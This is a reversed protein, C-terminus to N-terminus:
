NFFKIKSVELYKPQSFKKKVANLSSKEESDLILCMDKACERLKEEPYESLKSILDFENKKTIKLTIYIAAASKLSPHFKNTKSDVLFLEILYRCFMISHEDMKLLVSFIELFRFSSPTTINFELINLMHNETKLIEEKTYAQDTIYVFDRVEPAYIEEYKCAILMATVGVLQLKTRKIITRELYRDILNVTLFLTEALLKFKLHVDILWDILISRMKDNIDTQFGKMYPYKPLFQPEVKKLYTFIDNQYEIVLQPNPYENTIVLEELSENFISQNNVKPILNFNSNHEQMKQTMFNSVQNKSGFNADVFMTQSKNFDKGVM